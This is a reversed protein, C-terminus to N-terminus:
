NAHEPQRVKGVRMEPREGPRPKGLESAFAPEFEKELSLNILDGTVALHDPKFSRMDAILAALVDARHLERRKRHWNVFGLARKGALESLRPRPLSGLHPDSLHALRFM